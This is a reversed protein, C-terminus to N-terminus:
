KQNNHENDYHEFYDENNNDFWKGCVKCECYEKHEEDFEIESVDSMTISAGNEFEVIFENGSDYVKVDQGKYKGTRM